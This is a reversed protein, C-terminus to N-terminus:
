NAGPDRLVMTHTQHNRTQKNLVKKKISSSIGYDDQIIRAVTKSDAMERHLNPEKPKLITNSALIQATTIVKAVPTSIAKM